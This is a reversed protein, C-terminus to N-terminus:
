LRKTISKTHRLVTSGAWKPFVGLTIHEGCTLRIRLCEPQTRASRVPILHFIMQLMMILISWVPFYPLGEQRQKKNISLAETTDEERRPRNCGGKITFTASSSCLTYVNWQSSNGISRTAIILSTGILCPLSINCHARQCKM